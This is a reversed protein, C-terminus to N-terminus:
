IFQLKSKWLCILIWFCSSFCIIIWPFFLKILLLHYQILSFIAFSLNHKTVLIMLLLNTTIWDRLIFPQNNKWLLLLLWSLLLSCLLLLFHKMESNTKWYYYSYIIIRVSHLALFSALLQDFNNMWRYMWCNDHFSSFCLFFFTVRKGNKM